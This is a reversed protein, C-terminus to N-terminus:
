RDRDHQDDGVDPTQDEGQLVWLARKLGGYSSSAVPHLTRRLTIASAIAPTRTPSILSTRTPDMESAASDIPNLSNKMPAITTAITPFAASCQTATSTAALSM